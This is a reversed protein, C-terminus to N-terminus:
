CSWKVLVTPTVPLTSQAGVAAGLIGGDYVVTELRLPRGRGEVPCRCVTRRDSGSLRIM